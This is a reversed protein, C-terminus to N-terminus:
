HPAAPFTYTVTVGSKLYNKRKAKPANNIFDDEEKLALSLTSTLPSSITVQGGAQIGSIDNLTPMAWLTIDGSVREVQNGKRDKFLPTYSLSSQLNLGAFDDSNGPSYLRQHLYRMTATGAFSLIDNHSKGDCATSYFVRSLGAGYSQQLGVGLSSNGFIDGVIVFSTLSGKYVENKLSANGDYTDTVNAASGVKWNRNHSASLFMATYWSAPGCLPQPRYFANINGGFTEQSTTGDVVSQPGNIGLEFKAPMPLPAKVPPSMPPSADHEQKTLQTDKARQLLIAAGTPVQIQEDDIRVSLTGGVLRFTGVTFASYNKMTSGSEPSALMWGGKGAKVQQIASWPVKMLGLSNNEIEVNLDDILNLQGTLRDGNTLILVDANRNEAPMEARVERTTVLITFLTTAIVVGVSRFTFSM